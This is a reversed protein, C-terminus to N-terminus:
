EVILGAMGPEPDPYRLDLRGLADALIEAVAYNRFWNHDAPVVYWPAFETSCKSLADEYARQYDDWSKREELDARRFKWRKEPTDIRDQLRQRQEDKSVHLFFKLITTGSEVLGQEFENIQDYHRRWSGEPELGHVRVVLVQEYHSRNFIAIMGKGPTQKHVRWLFDHSAEEPTPVKFPAVIVGQPNLGTMVHKITGDKGATDMGQLVVLIAHKGGAYLREQLSALAEIRDRFEALAEERRGFTEGPDTTSLNVHSGPRVRLLHRLRDGGPLSGSM